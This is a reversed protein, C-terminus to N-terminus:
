SEHEYRLAKTLTRKALEPHGLDLEVIASIVAGQLKAQRDISLAPFGSSVMFDSLLQEHAKLKKDINESSSM